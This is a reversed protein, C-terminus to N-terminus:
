SVAEKVAQYRAWMEQVQYGAVLESEVLTLYTELDIFKLPSPQEDFLVSEGASLKSHLYELNPINSIAVSVIHEFDQAYSADSDLKEWNIELCEEGNLAIERLESINM